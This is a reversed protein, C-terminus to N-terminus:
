SIPYPLEEGLAETKIHSLSILPTVGNELM